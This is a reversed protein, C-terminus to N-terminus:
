REIETKEPFQALNDTQRYLGPEVLSLVMATPDLDRGEHKGEHSNLMALKAQGMVFIALM